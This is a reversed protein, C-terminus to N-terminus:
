GVTECNLARDGEATFAGCQDTGEGGDTLDKAGDNPADFLVGNSSVFDNGAGGFLRDAGGSGAIFDDAIGGLLRNASNNGIM